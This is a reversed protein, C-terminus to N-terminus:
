EFFPTWVPSLTEPEPLVQEIFLTRMGNKRYARMAVERRSDGFDLVTGDEFLIYKGKYNRLLDEKSAEFLRAQKEIYEKEKQEKLDAPNIKAGSALAFRKLPKPFNEVYSDGYMKLTEVDKNNSRLADVLRSKEDRGLFQFQMLQKSTLLFDIFDRKIIWTRGSVPLVNFYNSGSYQQSEQGYANPMIEHKQKAFFSCINRKRFEPLRNNSSQLVEETMWPNTKEVLKTM